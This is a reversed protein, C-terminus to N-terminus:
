LIYHEVMDNDTMPLDVFDDLGNWFLREPLIALAYGDGEEDIEEIDLAASM